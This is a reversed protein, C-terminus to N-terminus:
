LLTTIDFEEYKLIKNYLEKHNKYDDKNDAYHCTFEDEKILKVENNLWSKWDFKDYWIDETKMRVFHFSNKLAIITKYVDRKMNTEPNTWNSVQNFHQEGDLELIFNFTELKVLFDYRLYSETKPNKSFDDTYQRIVNEKEFIECLYKYMKLEGKQKCTPCWRNQNIHCLSDSFVHNLECLFHYEKNSNKHINRPMDENKSYNWFKSKEHSAFSKDFCFDCNNFCLKKSSCYRCINGQKEILSNINVEDCHNCKKCKYPIMSKNGNIFTANNIGLFEMEFFNPNKLIKENFLEICYPLNNSCKPCGSEHHMLNSIVPKWIGNKGYGCNLCIVPINSKNGRKFHEPKVLDFKKDTHKRKLRPMMIEFTCPLKNGCFEGNCATGSSFIHGISKNLLIHGCVCKLDIYSNSKINEDKSVLEVKSYRFMLILLEFSWKRPQPFKKNLCEKCLIFVGFKEKDCKSNVCKGYIKKEVLRELIIIEAM